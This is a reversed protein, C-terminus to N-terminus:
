SVEYPHHTSRGEIFTRCIDELEPDRAFMVQTNLGIGTDLIGYVEASNLHDLLEDHTFTVGRYLCDEPRDWTSDIVVGDKVCWAHHTPFGFASMAVGECYLLSPDAVAIISANRFCERKPDQPYEPPLPAPTFDRGQRLIFRELLSPHGIMELGKVRSALYENLSDM